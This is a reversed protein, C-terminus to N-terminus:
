KGKKPFKKKFLKVIIPAFIGGMLGPIVIYLLIFKM